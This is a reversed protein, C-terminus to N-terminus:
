NRELALKTGGFRAALQAADVREGNLELADVALTGGGGCHAVIRGDRLDLLPDGGPSESEIM